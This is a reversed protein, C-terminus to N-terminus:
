KEFIELWLKMAKRDNGNEDQLGTDRWIKGLDMLEPPFTEWLKDFDRYAWWIVFAYNHQHANLFLTKLYEVQEKESSKINLGFSEIELDNALHNTEAFAIPLDTQEHLFDFAKQFAKQKNLGKFFPYFSIAAFDMTSVLDKIENIYATADDVTPEFWNHLTVSESMKLTPYKAKLRIRVANMVLRFTDWLEPSNNLLENSEISYVLYAPQFADVLYSVHNFYADEIIQDNLGSYTIAAGSYDEMLNDRATNLFSVSLFVPLGNVKKAVKGDIENVFDIPLDTGNIWAEWPIKHDLHESYIDGNNLVFAYTENVDALEPGFPWTSFGMKFTRNEIIKSPNNKKCAILLIFPVICVIAKIILYKNKFGM